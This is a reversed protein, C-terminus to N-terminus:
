TERFSFGSFVIAIVNSGIYILGTFCFCIFILGLPYLAVKKYSYSSMKNAFHIEVYIINKNEVMKECGLCFLLGSVAYLCESLRRLCEEEGPYVFGQVAEPAASFSDPSCIELRVRFKEPMSVQHAPARQEPSLKRCKFLKWPDQPLRKEQQQESSSELLAKRKALAALRNAEARKRQEETIEM